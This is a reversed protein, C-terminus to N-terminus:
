ESEKKMEELSLEIEQRQHIIFLNDGELESFIGQLEQPTKLPVNEQFYEDPVDIL